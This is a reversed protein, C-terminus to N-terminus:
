LSSPAEPRASLSMKGDSLLELRVDAYRLIGPRHSVIVTTCRGHLGRISEAIEAETAEDLNASAEDLVLLEPQALLARALCLRQKQGASLGGGDENVQHELGASLARVQTDLRAARLAQWLQEDTAVSGAGYNLNDRLSGAVLFAEAGVYGIRPRRTDFYSSAAVGDVLIQGRSPENVGLLLALLTSKGVGSPGVVAFCQGAPIHLSVNSLVDKEGGAYAFGVNQLEFSPARHEGAPTALESMDAPASSMAAQIEEPEFAAVFSAVRATHGAHQAVQGMQQAAVSASQVFRVFLYLFSLLITPAVSRGAVAIVVLILVVGMFPPLVAAGNGVETALLSHRLYRDVHHTLRTHERAETRLVRVLLANRVVRMLGANLGDLEEPIKSAIRQVRRNLWMVVAAVGFLGLTAVLAPKWATFLLLIWLAGAQAAGELAIVLAFSALSAKVFGEGIAGQVDSAAVYRRPRALLVDYVALRRLRAVLIEQTAFGSQWVAWQLASRAFAVAVLVAGLQTPSFQGLDPGFAAVTAAPMIGIVRLFAQILWAIALEVAALGFSAVLGVCTWVLARRGTAQALRKWFSM